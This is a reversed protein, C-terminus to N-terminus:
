AYRFGPKKTCRFAVHVVVRLGEGEVQVLFLLCREVPLCVLFQATHDEM